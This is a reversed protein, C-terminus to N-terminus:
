ALIRQAGLWGLLIAPANTNGGILTPFASADCVRLGDVGRVRLDADLVSTAPDAGMRATCSPHYVTGSRQRFDDILAEDSTIHPGPRLEEAILDAIPKQAAIHRIFKVAALMEAVDQATSFANATIKPAVFPDASALRIHGRSSPRCNSLGISLGPFPDPSLIPREGERPMLTSFAQFYLQMNPRALGPDTRFFGGGHNISVSLPGRGTLLYQIGVLAKGWWPRLIDNMTPVTMRWTYNLGQHDNLHAGVNPNDVFVELGLAQLAAGPGIGSLMLTQPTNIAGGSLIVEGAMARHLGGKWRYEVGVARRGELLVRTVHAKTRLAVRGTKLAPRLFARATSNRRGGKITLQYLGCGEQTAGNFDPNRALGAAECAELYPTVLPHAPDRGSRIHLPGGQGRWPDAGDANDEIARYAERAAEGGWASSGTAAQWDDYDSADGRVWVMANISSSGGLVKGRPWYDRQGNLGPDPETRYAWNVRSDYFLKGYGLPMQVFFRRDSGGAELVLVKRGAASLREALVSGSSGAGVIVYDFTGDM